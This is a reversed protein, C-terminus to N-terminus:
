CSFLQARPDTLVQEPFSFDRIRVLIQVGCWGVQVLCSVGLKMECGASFMKTTGFIISKKLINRFLRFLSEFIYKILVLQHCIVRSNVYNSILFTATVFM